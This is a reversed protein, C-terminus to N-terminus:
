SSCEAVFLEPSCVTCCVVHFCSNYAELEHKACHDQAKQDEICHKIIFTTRTRCQPGWRYDLCLGEHSHQPIQPAQKGQVVVCCAVENEKAMSCYHTTKCYGGSFATCAIPMWFYTKKEMWLQSFCGSTGKICIFVHVSFYRASLPRFKVTKRRHPKMCTLM